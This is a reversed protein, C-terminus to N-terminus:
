RCMQWSCSRLSLPSTSCISPMDISRRFVKRRDFLVLQFRVLGDADGEADLRFPQRYAGVAGMEAVDHAVEDVVGNFIRGALCPDFYFAAGFVTPEDEGDAVLADADRVVLLAVHEVFEVTHRGSVQVVYLAIPQPQIVYLGHGLFM